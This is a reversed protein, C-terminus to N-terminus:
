FTPYFIKTKSKRGSSSKVHSDGQIYRRSLPRAHSVKASRSSYSHHHRIPTAGSFVDSPASMKTFAYMYM